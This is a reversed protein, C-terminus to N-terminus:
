MQGRKYQDMLYAVLDATTFRLLRGVRFACLRQNRVLRYVTRIPVKLQAAVEAPTYFDGELPSRHFRHAPRGARMMTTM